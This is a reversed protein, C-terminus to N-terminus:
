SYSDIIKSFDKSKLSAGGVLAGDVHKLNLINSANSSNVSGGYLISIKKSNYRGINKSLLKKIDAHINNIEEFTPTKGTGIAWVPEYAIILNKSNITKPLSKIQSNLVNSRIKIQNLKEGICYIVKLNNKIAIDVKLNLEKATEKHYERRESHGIIVYKCGISKLMRASISGTFAGENLYHCDQGGFDITTKEDIFKALLTFPPCIVVKSKRYKTKKIHADISKVVKIASNLGNMKWNAITYKVRKM